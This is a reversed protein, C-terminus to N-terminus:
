RAPNTVVDDVVTGAPANNNQHFFRTNIKKTVIIFALRVNNIDGGYVGALKIKLEEVEIEHVFPIQGEGVGDRYFIITAPLKNNVEQYKRVAKCMNVGLDNSLEEGSTHASVASFYRSCNSDLSAM